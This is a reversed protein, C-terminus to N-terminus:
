RFGKVVVLAQSKEQERRSRKQDESHDSYEAGECMDHLRVRPHLCAKPQCGNDGLGNAKSKAEVVPRGEMTLFLLLIRNKQSLQLARLALLIHMAYFLGRALFIRGFGDHIPADFDERPVAGIERDGFGLINVLSFEIWDRKQFPAQPIQPAVTQLM